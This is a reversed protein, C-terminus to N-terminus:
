TKALRRSFKRGIVFLWVISVGCSLLGYSPKGDYAAKGLWFSPFAAALYQIDTHSWFPVLMGLLLISSIKTLAMGELKNTSYSVVLLAIMMGQITGALSFSLYMMVRLKTLSFIPLVLITVCLSLLAPIGLRSILYGRKGLPTVALSQAIHDDTEELIIMAAIFCYMMPTLVTLFLDFLAYYPVLIEVQHFQSTLLTELLPIVLKFFLGCLLPAFGAAVLMMDQRICSMMQGFSRLISKM